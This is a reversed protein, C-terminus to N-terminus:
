LPLFEIRSALDEPDGAKAIVELNQICTGIPVKVPSVYIIGSFLIGAKQRDAAEKLLDDDFTFLVRNLATARDMLEPDSLTDANDEQATIVDIGRLRLGVTIAKPIHVDMYLTVAM